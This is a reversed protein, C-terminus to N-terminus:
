STVGHREWQKLEEQYKKELAANKKLTDEKEKLREGYSNEFLLKANDIKMQKRSPLMKDLFGLKPQYYPDTEKPMPPISLLQPPQSKPKPFKSKDKLVEWDIKDDVNLTHKLTNEIEEIAKIAEKTQEISSEIKTQKDEIKQEKELKRQWMENWIARQAAAKQEVVYKDNGRIHRYKNLGDHRLEIEWM